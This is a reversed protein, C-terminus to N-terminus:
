DDDDEEGLSRIWEDIIDHLIEKSERFGRILGVIGCYDEHNIARGKGLHNTQNGMEEDIRKDFETLLENIEM